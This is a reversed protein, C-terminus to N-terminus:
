EILLKVENQLFHTRVPYMECWLHHCKTPATTRHLCMAGNGPIQMFGPLLSVQKVEIRITRYLPSTGTRSEAWFFPTSREAQTGDSTARARGVIRLNIVVTPM